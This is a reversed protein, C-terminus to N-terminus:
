LNHKDKNQLLLYLFFPAGIFATVIGIPLEAPQIILRAIIDALTLLLAGLLASVPLVFQHNAGIIMRTIHPVVLGVFGILGTLSVAIGIGISCVIILQCKLKHPRIGLYHAQTDGLLLVNLHKAKRHLYVYLIIASTIPLFINDSNAGALSGMSWVSFDRLMQDDAIYNLYAIFAGCFANIAIGALLIMHMSTHNKEKGLQYIIFSILCSGLFAAMPLIIVHVITPMNALFSGLCVITLAVGLGAGASIGMITADALSNRFLCQMITGCL